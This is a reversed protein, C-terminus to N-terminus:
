KGYNITAGCMYLWNGWARDASEQDAHNVNITQSSTWNVFAWFGISTVSSPITISTLGTCGAFALDGISTLGSPLTISTLNTCDDFAREGISTVTSPINIKIINEKGAFSGEYWERGGYDSRHYTASAIETVPLYDSDANPRYYAPINVTGETATGASVSYATGGNIVTFRFSDGGTLREERAASSSGSGGDKSCAGFALIFMVALIGCVIIKKTKM